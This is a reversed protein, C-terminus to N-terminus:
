VEGVRLPPLVVALPLEPLLGLALAMPHPITITLLLSLAM